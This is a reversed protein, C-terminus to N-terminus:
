MLDMAEEMPQLMFCYHKLTTKPDVHCLLRQVTPLSKTKELLTSAAYGRFTHNVIRKYKRIKHNVERQYYVDDLKLVKCAKLIYWRMTASTIHEKTSYNSRARFIYKQEAPLSLVFEMFESKISKAMPIRQYYQKTKKKEIRFNIYLFDSPIQWRQLEIVEGVRRGMKGMLRLIWYGNPYFYEKFYSVIKDYEHHYLYKKFGTEM